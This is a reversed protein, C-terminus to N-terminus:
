AFFYIETPKLEKGMNTSFLSSCSTSFKRLAFIWCSKVRLVKWLLRREKFSKDGHGALALHLIVTRQTETNSYTSLLVLNNDKGIVM